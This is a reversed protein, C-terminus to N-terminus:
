PLNLPLRITFTTGENETSHFSIEGGCLGITDRVIALGLGTGKIQGVNSGRQFLGFLRQQDEQPIGIGDDQVIITLSTPYAEVDLRVQGTPSTYKVANSLLNTLIKFLM